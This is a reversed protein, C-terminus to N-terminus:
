QILAVFFEPRLAIFLASILGFALGIMTGAGVGRWFLKSEGQTM